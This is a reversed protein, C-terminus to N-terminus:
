RDAGGQRRGGGRGREKERKRLRGGQLREGDSYSPEKARHGKARSRFPSRRRAM